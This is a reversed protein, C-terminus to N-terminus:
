FHFRLGGGVLHQGVQHNGEGVDLAVYDLFHYEIFTSFKCNWYYDTGAVVDWAFSGSRKGGAGEFTRGTRVITVDAGSTEAWYAGVGGGAYPQFKGFAFRIIFNTMFAGSNITNTSHLIETNNFFAQRDTAIGNYFMDEEVAFRVTSKGFVYGVKIGGYGGVNSDSNISFVDGNAFVHERGRNVDQYVNAGGDLAVYFGTGFDCPPPAPAVQKYSTTESGAFLSSSVLAIAAFTLVSFKKM